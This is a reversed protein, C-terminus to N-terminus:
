EIIDLDYYDIAHQAIASYQLLGLKNNSEFLLAIELLVMAAAIALWFQLKEHTIAASGPKL